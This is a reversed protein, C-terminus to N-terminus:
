LVVLVPQPTDLHSANDLEIYPAKAYKQRKFSAMWSVM